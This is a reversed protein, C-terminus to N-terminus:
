RHGDFTRRLTRATGPGIVAHATDVTRGQAAHVTSAYGLTLDEAVNSAPLQLPAGLQEAGTDDRGRM